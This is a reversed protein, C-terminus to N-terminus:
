IDHFITHATHCYIIWWFGFLVFSHLLYFKQLLRLSPLSYKYPFLRYIMGNATLFAAMDIIGEAGEKAEAVGLQEAVIWIGCVCVCVCVCLTLTPTITPACMCVYVCMCVCVCVRVFLIYLHLRVCQGFSIMKDYNYATFVRSVCSFLILTFYLLSTICVSSLIIKGIWVWEKNKVNCCTVDCWMM